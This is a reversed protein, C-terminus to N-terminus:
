RLAPAVAKWLDVLADRWGELYASADVEDRCAKEFRRYDETLTYGTGSPTPKPVDDMGLDRAVWTHVHGDVTSYGPLDGAKKLLGTTTLIAMHEAAGELQDRKANDIAWQGGDEHGRDYWRQKSGKLREVLQAIKPDAVSPKAELMNLERELAVTCVRSVNVRERVRELREHLADPISINVRM